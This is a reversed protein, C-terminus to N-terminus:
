CAQNGPLRHWSLKRRQLRISFWLHPSADSPSFESDEFVDLRWKVHDPVVIHGSAWGAGFLSM